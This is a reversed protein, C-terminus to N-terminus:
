FFRLLALVLQALGWVAAACALLRWKKRQANVLVPASLRELSARSAAPTGGPAVGFLSSWAFRLRAIEADLDPSSLDLFPKLGRKADQPDTSQM